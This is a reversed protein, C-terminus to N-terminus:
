TPAPVSRRERQKDYENFVRSKFKSFWKLRKEKIGYKRVM